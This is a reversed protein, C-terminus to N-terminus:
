KQNVSLYDNIFSDVSDGIHQRINKIKESGIIGSHGTSWTIAQLLMSPNRELRVDQILSLECSYLVGGPLDTIGINIVLYGPISISEAKSLINIGAKRLRLEVDFKIQSQSIEQREIDPSIREIVVIIETLGHLSAIKSQVAAYCSSSDCLTLFLIITILNKWYV